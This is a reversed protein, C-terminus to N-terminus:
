CYEYSGPIEVAQSAPSLEKGEDEGMSKDKPKGWGCLGITVAEGDTSM